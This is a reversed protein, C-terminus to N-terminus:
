PEIRRLYYITGTIYSIAGVCTTFWFVIPWAQARTFDHSSAFLEFGFVFATTAGISVSASIAPSELFTSLLWALGFCMIQCGGNVVIGAWGSDFRFADSLVDTAIIVCVNLLWLAFVCVWGIISKSLVIRARSTPLMALFDASRERREAAFATDGFCAALISSLFLMTNAAGFFTLRVFRHETSTHILWSIALGYVVLLMVLSGLVPARNVRWDKKLLAIM